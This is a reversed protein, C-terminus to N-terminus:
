VQSNQTGATTTTSSAITSSPAAAPKAQKKATRSKKKRQAGGTLNIASLLRRKKRREVVTFVSTSKTKGKVTVEGLPQTDYRKAVLEQTASSILIPVAYEKTTSELRAALNVTDGIVTYELRREAGVVGCIAEGTHIGVGIKIHPRNKATAEENMAEVEQLMELGCAVAAWAEGYDGRSVPAGFVILLGDGIFKNIHGCHRDVITHMRSFYDNLLEVLKESAMGESITTFGRIDTFVLTVIRREGGALADRQQWLKEAVDDSVCRSFIDMIEAREAEKEERVAREYAYRLGLGTPVMALMGLWASALPLIVAHTNFSWVAAAFVGVAILGILFAGPLARLTFVCLAVLALPLLVLAVQRQYAPRVPSEGWLLTAVATAHIEVGPTKKPITPLDADFFRVLALPEVFPTAFLDPAQTFSAGILVIRDKFFREDSLPADPNENLVDIASVTQFAPSRARFDLQLNRDTRLPLTREGLRVTEDGIPQFGQENYFTEEPKGQALHQAFLYGEALRTAFSFDPQEGNKHARMLMTSRAATETDNDASMDVFGITYAGDAFMPLPSIAPTGGADLKKALVVNGANLIAAALKEDTAAEEPSRGGAESLLDDVGIVMAGGLSAREILPAYATRSFKQTQVGAAGITKDDIEIITIPENRGRERGDKRWVDRMQFLLDVAINEIGTTLGYPRTAYSLGGADPTPRMVLALLGGIAIVLALALAYYWRRLAYAIFKFNSKRRAM